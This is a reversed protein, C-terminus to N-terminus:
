IPNKLKSSPSIARKHQMLGTSSPLMKDGNLSILFPKNLKLPQGRRLMLKVKKLQCIVKVICALARTLIKSAPICAQM